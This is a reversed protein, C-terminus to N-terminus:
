RHSISLGWCFILLMSERASLPEHEYRHCTNHHPEWIRYAEFCSKIFKVIISYFTKRLVTIWYTM